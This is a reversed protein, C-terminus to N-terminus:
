FFSCVCVCLSLSLSKTAMGHLERCRKNLLSTLLDSATATQPLSFVRSTNEELLQIRILLPKDGDATATAITTATSSATNDDTSSASELSTSLTSDGDDVIPSAREKKLKKTKGFINSTSQGRSSKTSGIPPHPPLPSQIDLQRKDLSNLVRVISYLTPRDSPDYNICQRHLAVLQAGYREEEEPMMLPPQRNDVATYIDWVRPLEQYPTRLTMLEYLVM